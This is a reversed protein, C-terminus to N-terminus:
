IPRGTFFLIQCCSLWDEPCKGTEMIQVIKAIAFVLQVEACSWSCTRSNRSETQMIKAIAFILQVEAYSWSCTGSTRSETQMIKASSLSCRLM